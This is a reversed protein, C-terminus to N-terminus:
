SAGKAKADAAAGNRKDDEAVLRRFYASESEGRLSRLVTIREKGGRTVRFRVYEDRPTNGDPRRPM